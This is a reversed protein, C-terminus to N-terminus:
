EYYYELPLLKNVFIKGIHLKLIDQHAFAEQQLKALNQEGRTNGVM